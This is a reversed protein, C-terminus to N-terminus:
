LAVPPPAPPSKTMPVPANAGVATVYEAPTVVAALAVPAVPETDSVHHGVSPLRLGGVLKPLPLVM